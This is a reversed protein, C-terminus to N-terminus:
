QITQCILTVIRWSGTVIQCIATVEITDQVGIIQCFLTVFQPSKQPKTLRTDRNSMGPTVIFGSEDEFRFVPNDPRDM